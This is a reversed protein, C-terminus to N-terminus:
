LFGSCQLLSRANGFFIKKIKFSMKRILIEISSSFVLFLYLLKLM